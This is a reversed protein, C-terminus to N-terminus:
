RAGGPATVTMRVVFNSEARSRALARRRAPSPVPVVLLPGAAPGASVGASPEGTPTRSPRSRDETDEGVLGCGGTFEARGKCVLGFITVGPLFGGVVQEREGHLSVASHTAPLLM